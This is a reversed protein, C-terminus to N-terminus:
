NEHQTQATDQASAQTHFLTIPSSYKYIYKKNSNLQESDDRFVFIGKEYGFEWWQQWIDM